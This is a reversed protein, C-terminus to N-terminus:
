KPMRERTTLTEQAPAASRPGRREGVIWPGLELLRQMDELAGQEAAQRSQGGDYERVAACESWWEVLEDPDVGAREALEICASRSM